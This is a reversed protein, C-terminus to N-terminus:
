KKLIFIGLGNWWTRENSILSSELDWESVISLGCEKIGSDVGERVEDWAYDDVIYLFMDAFIPYFYTLSKATGGVSHNGDYFYVNIKDKIQSIDMEFSHCELFLFDNIGFKQCNSLFVDRSGEGFESWNDICVANVRNGYLASIFTSGRYVGIELYNIDPYSMINNLLHRIPVSSMGEIGFIEDTLKSKSNLANDICRDITEKCIDM